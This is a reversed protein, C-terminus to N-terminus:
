VERPGHTREEDRECEGDEKDRGRKARLLVDGFCGARQELFRTGRLVRVPEVFRDRLVHIHDRAHRSGDGRVYREARDVILAAVEGFRELDERFTEGDRGLVLRQERIGGCNCQLAAIRFASQAVDFACQLAILAVGIKVRQASRNQAREIPRLVCQSFQLEGDFGRRVLRLM